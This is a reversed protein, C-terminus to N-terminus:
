SWPEGSVLERCRERLVPLRSQRRLMSKPATDVQPRTGTMPVVNRRPATLRAQVEDRPGFAAVEGGRLLLLRDVVRLNPLQHTILVVTVGRGKLDLITSQLLQAAAVDAHADPEDLVILAPEGYLARALAIRQQEGGSLRQGQPGIVTDYGRPLRLIAEHAGALEAAAVVDEPDPAGM